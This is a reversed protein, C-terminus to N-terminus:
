YHLSGFKWIPVLLPIIFFYFIFIFASLTSMKSSIKISFNFVSETYIAHWKVVSRTLIHLFCAFFLLVLQCPFSLWLSVAPPRPQFSFHVAVFFFFMCSVSVSLSVFWWRWWWGTLWCTSSARRSDPRQPFRQVKRFCLGPKVYPSVRRRLTQNTLSDAAEGGGRRWWGEKGGTQGKLTLDSLLGLDRGAPAWLWYPTLLKQSSSEILLILNM